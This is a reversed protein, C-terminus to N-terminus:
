LRIGGRMPAPSVNKRHTHSAHRSFHSRSDKGSMKHRFAM